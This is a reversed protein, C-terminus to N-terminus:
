EVDTKWLGHKNCYSYITSGPIYPFKAEAAPFNPELRLIIQEHDIVLAIWEIFHEEEMVHNVKVYVWDDKKEYTPLHKEASADVSNSVVLEMKEGCCKIGCEGECQCDKLVKVLAGCKNCKKLIKTIEKNNNDLTAIIISDARASEKLDRGDTGVLLVNTIGEVEKYEVDEESKKEITKIEIESSKTYIKSKVYSYYGIVGGVIVALVMSIASIIIRNRLSYRKKDKSM